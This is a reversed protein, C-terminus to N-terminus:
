VLIFIAYKVFNVIKILDINLDSLSIDNNKILQFEDINGWQEGTAAYKAGITLTGDTVKINNITPKTWVRWGSNTFNTTLTTKDSTQAYIQSTTEGGSGSVWASLEYSGNALGKITQSVTFNKITDNYHLASNGSHSDKELDLEAVDGTVTWDNLGLEFGYNNILKANKTVIVECTATKKADITTVTITTTGAKVGTIIGNSSDIKAITPDATTYKVGTITANIPTITAKLAVTDGVEVTTSAKDITVQKVPFPNYEIAGPIFAEMAKTPKGDLGWASLAYGSWSKAGEPEWYFVGTGMNNPVGKVKAQVAVLMNYTNIPETDLGGVEVVMVEKGYRAAMDNLNNGLADINSTYDMGAWYPYYSMGIIDYKANNAKLSDFYKRFNVNDYGDAIHIIVKTNNSIAKVADYGRNILQALKSYDKISGDPLMMGPNTENGVQVWEPTVGATKLTNMVGLTYDYVDTKLVGFDHDKWALPKVQKGPDAWTDSYHFDIMIRFGMAKAKVAMAVVESTSCHGDTKSDSPNVWSRLRISDIGYDKLISLCDKVNGDKDKFIYNTAEMQSLWGVDAGKAFTSTSPTEAQVKMISHFDSIIGLILTTCLIKSLVSKFRNKSM